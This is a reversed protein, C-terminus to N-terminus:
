DNEESLIYNGLLRMDNSSLIGKFGYKNKYAPDSAKCTPPTIPGLNKIDIIPNEKNKHIIHKIKTPMLNETASIFEQVSAVLNDGTKYLSKTQALSTVNTIIFIIVYIPFTLKTM